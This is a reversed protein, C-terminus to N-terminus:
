FRDKAARVAAFVEVDEAEPGLGVGARVGLEGPRLFPNTALEEAMTTPVTPEGRARRGAERERREALRENGPEVSIAFDANSLTYEHACYIQTQPPFALFKQLSSWMQEPTGEFLRGCGMAFLTDGVFAAEAEPVHYACHGRTHGPTDLVRVEAGGLQLTDGQGVALDIGPIRDRDARPGVVRAGWLEKLELNGGTHDNHHHTNLIYAPTEWGLQGLRERVPGADCPDVVAVEAGAPGGAGRAYRLASLM